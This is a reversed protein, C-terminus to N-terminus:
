RAAVRFVYNALPESDPGVPSLQLLYDGARLLNAPVSVPVAGSLSRLEPSRWLNENGGAHKLAVTYAPSDDTELRLAFIASVAEPPVLVEPIPGGGRVPPKLVLAVLPQSPVTSPGRSVSNPAPERQAQQAPSSPRANQYILVGALALAAIGLALGWRPIVLPVSLWGRAPEREQASLALLTEAFKLKERRHASALYSSRFRALTEGSLENRLYADVLENEAARLRWAFDDDSVSLEDLREAQDEPLSGLLYQLITQDDQTPEGPM